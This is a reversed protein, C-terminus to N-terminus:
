YEDRFEMFGGLNRVQTFHYNWADQGYKGVFWESASRVNIRWIGLWNPLVKFYSIYLPKSMIPCTANDVDFSLVSSRDPDRGSEKIQQQLKNLLEDSKIM